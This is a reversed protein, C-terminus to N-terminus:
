DREVFKRNVPALVERKIKGINIKTQEKYKNNVLFGSGDQASLIKMLYLNIINMDWLVFRFLEYFYGKRYYEVADTGSKGMKKAGLADAVHNLSIHEDNAYKHTLVKLDVSPIRKLVCGDDYPDLVKNFYNNGWGVLLESKNANIFFDQIENERLIDTYFLKPNGDEISIRSYALASVRLTEPDDWSNSIEQALIQTEFDYVTVIM